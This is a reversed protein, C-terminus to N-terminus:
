AGGDTAGSGSIPLSFYFTAGRDVEGEAWIRGGHRKVIRHVNALGIGTGEFEEARHLRQFVGFLKSVYRMDFGVGNDRIFFITEGNEQRSGMEIIAEPRTRTYKVANSILNQLALRLMSPDAQVKPLREIHWDITRGETEQQITDLVDRVIDNTDVVTRRMETRGMQSFSLLNDVLTGAYRASDAITKLYHLSSEDLTGKTRRELLDAFGVIHRFPARLDHSVSYSFAELEHNAAQLQATRELVRQELTENLRRVEQRSRQLETIDRFVLVAGVVVEDIMIPSTSCLVPIPAGNGRVFEDEHNRVVTAGALVEHARGPLEGNEPTGPKFTGALPAGHLGGPTAGAIAEAAPNAYTIIGGTDIVCLGEAMSGTVTRTFDLQYRLNEEAAKRTSIDMTVGRMGAPQGHEDRIVVSHSEAWVVRGDRAIWRFQSVGGVGSSFIEEYEQGARQRDEPHLITLWFDPAQMWEEATYGLMTEVYDSVYDIHQAGEDPARWSEWVLGPINSIISSLRRSQYDVLSILQASEREAHKRESIDRIVHIYLKQEMVSFLRSSAEVPFTSGDSRRHEAEFIAGDGATSGDAQRADEPSRLDRLNMGALREMPYGYILAAQRNAALITFEANFLLMADSTVEFLTRWLQESERLAKETKRIRVLAEVRAILERNQIPRTIYGDAGAELGHVQSESSIEVGSLLVVFTTKLEPDAKIQRCIDLGSINPLQVDLLIIDPGEEQVLRLCETGTPAELVDYGANRLMRAVAHLMPPNDDVVLIRTRDNM